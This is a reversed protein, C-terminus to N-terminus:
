IKLAARRVTKLGLWSEVFSSVKGYTTVVLLLFGLSLAIVSGAESGRGFIFAILPGPALIMLGVLFMFGSRLLIQRWTMAQGDLQVTRMGFILKGISGGFMRHMVISLLFLGLTMRTMVFIYADYDVRSFSQMIGFPFRVGTVAMVANWIGIFVAGDILPYAVRRKPSAEPKPAQKISSM